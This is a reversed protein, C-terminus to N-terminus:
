SFNRHHAVLLTEILQVSLQELQQIADGDLLVRLEGALPELHEFTESEMAIPRARGNDLRFTLLLKEFNPYSKAPCFFGPQILRTEIRGFNGM